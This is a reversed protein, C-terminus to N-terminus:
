LDLLRNLEAIAEDTLLRGDALDDLTFNANETAVDTEGQLREFELTATEVAAEYAAPDEGFEAVRQDDTLSALRLLEDGAASEAAEAEAIARQETQYQFLQGPMSNPSANELARQNAHAANLGKLVSAIAGRGNSNNNQGRNSRTERDNRDRNNRGNGNGNGNGGREAYAADASLILSAGATTSMILAIASAKLLTNTLPM